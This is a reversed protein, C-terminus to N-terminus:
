AYTHYTADPPPNDRGVSACLEILRIMSQALAKQNQAGQSPTAVFQQISRASIPDV